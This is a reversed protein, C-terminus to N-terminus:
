CGRRRRVWFGRLAQGLTFRRRATEVTSTSM